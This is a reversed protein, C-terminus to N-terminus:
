ELDIKNHVSFTKTKNKDPPTGAHCNIYTHTHTHTNEEWENQVDLEDSTGAPTVCSSPWVPNRMWIREATRAKIKRALIIWGNRERTSRSTSNKYLLIVVTPKEWTYTHVYTHIYTHDDCIASYPDVPYDQELDASCPLYYEGTGTRTQSNPRALRTWGDRGADAQEDGYEPQIQHKSVPNSGLEAAADM